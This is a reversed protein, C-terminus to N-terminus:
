QIESHILIQNLKDLVSGWNEITDQRLLKMTPYWLTNSCELMWRWDPSFPLLLFTKKGLAASLHAVSTDVSIVLDMLSCVAATDSFDQLAEGVFLINAKKFANHDSKRLEKQLCIYDFDNPLYPLLTELAISRYRDGKNTESGSWVLGIKPKTGRLLTQWHTMKQSDACLYSQKSPISELTTKFVFPLSLLSCHYDFAPLSEGKEIFCDVGKLQRMLPLLSKEVEFIIQCGFRSVMEIYRCFQITDGLGQESYLLVTKGALSVDCKQLIPQTFNKRQMRKEYLAFGELFNGMILYILSKNVLANTNNPNLAIAKEYMEIASEFRNYEKYINGLNTYAYTHTPDIIIAKKYMKQADDLRNQEKFIVALNFYVNAHNINLAIAKEYYMVAKTLENQEQFILGLSYYANAHTPNGTIVKEYLAIAESHKNLKKLIHGLNMCANTHKPNLAIVNEYMKIADELRNQEKFIIGLNYYYRENPEIDIAKNILDIAKHRNQQSRYLLGLANLTDAHYPDISLIEEYLKKLADCELVVDLKSVKNLLLSIINSKVQTLASRKM